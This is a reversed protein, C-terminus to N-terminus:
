LIIKIDYGSLNTPIDDQYVGDKIFRISFKLSGSGQSDPYYTCKYTPFHHSVDMEGVYVIEKVYLHTLAHSLGIDRVKNEIIEKIENVM